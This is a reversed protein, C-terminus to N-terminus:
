FHQRLRAQQEPYLAVLTDHAAQAIAWDLSVHGSVPAVGAYSKYKQSIADVAEFMVIHVIAMARSSRTPGIQAGFCAPDQENPTHDIATTDLAIENWLLYRDLTGVAKRPPLLDSCSVATEGSPVALLQELERRNEESLPSQAAAATGPSYFAVMAIAGFLAALIRSPM